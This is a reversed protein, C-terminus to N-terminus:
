PCLLVNYASAFEGFDADDVRGDGNLDAPCGAEMGPAGCTTLSYAAAFIGFDADDVRWDSNFDAHCAEGVVVSVADSFVQGCGNVFVAAFEGADAETAGDIRLVEANAGEIVGGGAAAGGSGDSVAVGNRTWHVRVEGYGSASQARLILDHGLAVRADRPQTAVWPVGSDSWRGLYFNLAPGRFFDGGILLEGRHTALAHGSSEFGEAFTSWQGGDWRALRSAVYPSGNPRYNGGFVLAGNYEVIDDVGYFTFYTAEVGLSRWEMGNWRALNKIEPKGLVSIKGGVVLEGKFARMMTVTGTLGEGVPQWQSGDWRGLNMLRNEDGLSVTGGAYLEGKYEALCAAEVSKAGTPEDVVEWDSGNWIALGPVFHAADRSFQGTAYLKDAIELFASVGGLPSDGLEQWSYGDWMLVSYHDDSYPDRFEQAVVLRDKWIGMASPRGLELKPFPPFALWERGNWRAISEVDLQQVQRFLGIVAVEDGFPQIANVRGTLGGTLVRAKNGSLAVPAIHLGMDDSFQGSFLITEGKYQGCVSGRIGGAIAPVRWSTGNWYAISSPARGPTGPPADYMVGGSAMLEDGLSTLTGVGGEDFGEGVQNWTVGNWAAIRKAPKGDANFFLGGVYLEGRHEAACSVNGDVGEGFGHWSSGNWGAVGLARVSGSASFNGVAILEGNWTALGRVWGNLGQGLPSWSAGNWRAIGQPSGLGAFGFSGGAILQGGFEGLAFVSNDLGEGISRWHAGDWRSINLAPLKDATDFFGGAILESGFGRLAFVQADDAGQRMGIGTAHWARGDWQGVGSAIEHGAYRIRGGVYVLEPMPGAGDLDFVTGSLVPYPGVGIRATEPSLRWGSECVSQANSAGCPWGAACAGVVVIGRWARTTWRDARLEYEIRMRREEGM